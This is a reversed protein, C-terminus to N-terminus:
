YEEGQGMIRYLVRKELGHITDAGKPKPIIGALSEWGPRDLSNLRTIGTANLELAIVKDPDIPRIERSEGPIILHWTNRIKDHRISSAIEGTLAFLAPPNDWDKPFSFLQGLVLRVSWANSVVFDTRTKINEKVFLTTGDELDPSQTLVNQWFQRQFCASNVFDKQVAMSFGLLLALYMALIGTTLRKLSVIQGMELFIWALGTMIISAGFTAALHVCTDRGGLSVPPWRTFTLAYGITLAVAGALVLRLGEMVGQPLTLRCDMKLFYKRSVTSFTIHQLPIDNSIKLIGWWVAAAFIPMAALSAADAHALAFWPRIFFAKAVTLPGLIMGSFIHHLTLWPNQTLLEGMRTEHMATRLLAHALIALIVMSFVAFLNKLTQRNWPAKLLPVALFPIISTEYTILTGTILAFSLIKRGDLYALSAGLLFSLSAQLAMNHTLMVHTTDAPFLCFACAGAFAPGAPAAKKAAFYFLIANAAVILYGFLYVWALGGLAMGLFTFVPMLSFHLPRGQPWAKWAWRLLHWIQVWGSELHKGVHNYDDEYLLFDRVWLFHATWAVAALALIILINQKSSASLNMM